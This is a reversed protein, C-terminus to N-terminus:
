LFNEGILAMWLQHANEKSMGKKRLKKEYEKQFHKKWKKNEAIAWETSSQQLAAHIIPHVDIQFGNDISIQRKGRGCFVEHREADLTGTYYCRRNHKDKYGNCKKETKKGGPKPFLLNSTDISSVEKDFLRM